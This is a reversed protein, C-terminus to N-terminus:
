AMRIVPIPPVPTTVIPASMAMAAWRSPRKAATMSMAPRAWFPPATVLWTRRAGCASSMLAIRTGAAPASTM